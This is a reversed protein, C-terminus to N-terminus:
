CRHLDEAEGVHGLRAVVEDDGGVLALGLRDAGGTLAPLTLNLAAPVRRRQGTPGLQLVDELLNLGALGGGQVHDDLGVHVAREFRDGLAELLQLTVLHLHGHQEAADAPDGLAVPQEGAGGGCRGQPETSEGRRWRM